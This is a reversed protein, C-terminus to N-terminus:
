SFDCRSLPGAIVKSRDRRVPPRTINSPTGLAAWQILTALVAETGRSVCGLGLELGLGLGSELGLGLELGLGSELGSGSGTGSM